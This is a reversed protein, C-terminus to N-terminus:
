KGQMLRVVHVLLAVNIKPASGAPCCGFVIDFLFLYAVCIRKVRIQVSKENLHTYIFIVKIFNFPINSLCNVFLRNM